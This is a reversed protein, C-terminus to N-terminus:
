YMSLLAFLSASVFVTFGVKLLLESGKRFYDDSLFPEPTVVVSRNLGFMLDSITRLLSLGRQRKLVKDFIPDSASGKADNSILSQLFKKSGNPPGTPRGASLLRTVSVDAQDWLERVIAHAIKEHRKDELQVQERAYHTDEIM